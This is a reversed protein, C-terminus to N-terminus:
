RTFNCLLGNGRQKTQTLNPLTPPCALASLAPQPQPRHGIFGATTAPFSEAEPEWWPQLPIEFNLILQHNFVRHLTEMFVSFHQILVHPTRRM